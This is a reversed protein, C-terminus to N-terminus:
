EAEPRTQQSGARRAAILYTLEAGWLFVMCSYYVWAAMAVASGAAGFASAISVRGLYFGILGEGLLFLVATVSAGILLERWPTRVDPLYRFVLAFLGTLLVLFLGIDAVHLLAVPIQIWREVLSGLALLATRLLLSVLITVGFLLVLGFALARGLIAQKVVPQGAEEVDWIRNLAGRLHNFAATSAFVLVVVALTGGLVDGSEFWSLELLGAVLDATRADSVTAVGDILHARVQEAGLVRGVLGVAIVLLPAISMLTYFAM